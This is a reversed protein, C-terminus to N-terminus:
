LGRGGALLFMQFPPLYRAAAPPAKNRAAALRFLIMNISSFTNCVAAIYQLIVKINFPPLPICSQFLLPCLGIDLGPACDAGNETYEEVDDTDQASNGGRQLM